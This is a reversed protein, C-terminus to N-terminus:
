QRLFDMHKPLPWFVGYEHFGGNDSRLLFADNRNHNVGNTYILNNFWGKCVNALRYRCSECLTLPCADCLFVARAPCVMCFKSIPGHPKGNMHINHYHANPPEAPHPSAQSSRSPPQSSMPTDRRTAHHYNSSNAHGLSDDGSMTSDVNSSTSDMHSGTGSNVGDDNSGSSADGSDMEVGNLAAAVIAHIGALTMYGNALDADVDVVLGPSDLGGSADDSADLQSSGAPSQRNFAHLGSQWRGDDSLSVIPSFETHCGHAIIKLKLVKCRECIKAKQMDVQRHQSGRCMLNHMFPNILINDITSYREQPDGFVNSRDPMARYRDYAPSSGSANMPSQSPSPHVPKKPSPGAGAPEKAPRKGKGNGGKDKKSRSSADNLDDPDAVAIRNKGTRICERCWDHGASGLIPLFDHSYPGIGHPMPTGSCFDCEFREGVKLLKIALPPEEAELEKSNKKQIRPEMRLYDTITLPRGDFPMSADLNYDRLSAQVRRAVQLRRLDEAAEATAPQNQEIADIRQALLTHNALIGLTSFQPAINFNYNAHRHFAEQAMMCQMSNPQPLAYPQPMQMNQQGGANANYPLQQGRQYPASSQMNHMNMGMNGHSNNDQGPQCYGPISGSYAPSPPIRRRSIPWQARPTPQHFSPPHLPNPSVTILPADPARPTDGLFSAPHLPNQAVDAVSTDPDGTVVLAPTSSNSRTKPKPVLGAEVPSFAGTTNIASQNPTASRTLTVSSRDPIRIASSAQSSMRGPEAPHPSSSATQSNSNNPGPACVLRDNMMGSASQPAFSMNYGGPVSRLNGRAAGMFSPIVPPPFGAMNTLPAQTSSGVMNERSHAPTSSSTGAMNAKINAQGSSEATNSPPFATDNLDVNGWFPGLERILDATSEDEQTDNGYRTGNGSNNNMNEPTVTISQPLLTSNPLSSEPSTSPVNIQATSLPKGTQNGTDITNVEAISYNTATTTSTDLSPDMPIGNFYARGFNQGVGTGMKSPDPQYSTLDVPRSDELGAMMEAINVDVDTGLDVATAPENSPNGGTNIANTQDSGGEITSSLRSGARSRIVTDVMTGFATAVNTTTTDSTSRRHLRDPLSLNFLYPSPNNAQVAARWQRRDAGTNAPFESDTTLLPERAPTASLETDENQPLNLFDDFVVDEARAASAALQNDMKGSPSASSSSPSPPPPPPNAFPSLSSKDRFARNPHNVPALSPQKSRPTPSSPSERDEIKSSSNVPPTIPTRVLKGGLYGLLLQSPSTLSAAGLGQSASAGNNATSFSLKNKRQRRPTTTNSAM